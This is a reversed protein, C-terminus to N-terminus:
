RFFNWIDFHRKIPDYSYVMLFGQVTILDQRNSDIVRLGFSLVARNKHNLDRRENCKISGLGMKKM